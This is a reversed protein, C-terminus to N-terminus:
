IKKPRSRSIACSRLATAILSVPMDHDIRQIVTQVFWPGPAVFADAVGDEAVPRGSRDRRNDGRTLNLPFPKNTFESWIDVLAQAACKVYTHEMPGRPPTYRCKECALKLAELLQEISEPRTSGGLLQHGTFRQAQWSLTTFATGTPERLRMLLEDTADRVGQVKSRYWSASPREVVNRYQRWYDRAVAQLREALYERRAKDAIQLLTAAASIDDETLKPLTPDPFLGGSPRWKANADHDGSLHKLKRMSTM